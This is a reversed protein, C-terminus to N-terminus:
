HFEGETELMHRDYRDLFRHLAKETERLHGVRQALYAHGLATLRYVRRAPGSAKSEWESVTLGAAEMGRLVRYVMSADTNAIHFRALAQALGYGHRPKIHLLLIICPEM